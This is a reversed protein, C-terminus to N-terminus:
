REYDAGEQIIYELTTTIISSILYIGILFKLLAKKLIKDENKM